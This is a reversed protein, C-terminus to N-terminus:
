EGWDGARRRPHVTGRKGLAEDGLRHDLPGFFRMGPADEVTNWIMNSVGAYAAVIVVEWWGTSNYVGYREFMEHIFGAVVVQAACRVSRRANDSVGAGPEAPGIGSRDRGDLSAAAGRRDTWWGWLWDLLGYLLLVGGVIYLSRFVDVWTEPIIPLPNDDHRSRLVGGWLSATALSTLFLGVGRWTWPIRPILMVLAALMFTVTVLSIWADDRWDQAPPVAAPHLWFLGYVVATALCGAIVRKM